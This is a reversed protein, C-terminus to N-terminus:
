GLDPNAGLICTFSAGVCRQEAKSSLSTSFAVDVLPISNLAANCRIEWECGSRSDM